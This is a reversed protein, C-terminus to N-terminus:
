WQRGHYGPHFASTAQGFGAYASGFTDPRVAFDMAMTNGRSQPRYTDMYGEISPDCGCEKMGDVLAKLFDPNLLVPTAYGKIKLTGNLVTSMISIRTSLRQELTGKAPNYTDAFDFALQKDTEGLLNLVALYDIERLDRMAGSKDFYYGLVIRDEVLRGIPGGKYHADFRGNTLNNATQLLAKAADPNGDAADRVMSLIWTTDACEPIQLEIALPHFFANAFEYLNFAPDNVDVKADLELGLGNLSHIDAGDANYKPKLASLWASGGRLLMTSSALSLLQLEPTILQTSPVSNTIVMKPQFMQTSQIPAGYQQPISVKDTFLIDVYGALSSLNISNQMVMSSNEAGRESANLEVRFSRRIPLGAATETQDAPFDMRASFHANKAHKALNFPECNEVLTQVANVGRHLVDRIRKEDESKLEMPIVDAGAELWTEVGNITGAVAARVKDFVASSHNYVDGATSPIMIDPAGQQKYMRDQLTGQITSEVVYVYIAATDGKKMVLALCGCVLSTASADIPIISLASVDGPEKALVNRMGDTYASLSEGTANRSVLSSFLSGMSLISSGATQGHGKTSGNNNGDSKLLSM